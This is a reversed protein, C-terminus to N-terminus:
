VEGRIQRALQMDKPMVTIRKAHIKCIHSGELLWILYAESVEHLAMVVYAQIKLSSREVQLLERVLRYFLRRLILLDTSKQFYRIEM